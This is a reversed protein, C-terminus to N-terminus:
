LKVEVLKFYRVKRHQYKEWYEKNQKISTTNGDFIQLDEKLYPEPLLWRLYFAMLDQGAWRWIAVVLIQFVM